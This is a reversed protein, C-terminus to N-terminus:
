SLLLKTEEETLGLRELIEARQAAKTAEEAERALESKQNAEIAAQFSAIEEPTMDREIQEDSAHNYIGIKM